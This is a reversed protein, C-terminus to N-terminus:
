YEYRAVAFQYRSNVYSAGVAVIKEDSQTNVSYITEHSSGIATTVIGRDGFTLDLSGDENYRALSFDYTSGILSFGAAIIKDDRQMTVAYAADTGGIGTKVKGLNGFGTDLTGDAEYRSLAYDSYLSSYATNGALVIKDDRQVAVAYAYDYAADYFHTTTDHVYGGNSDLRVLSFNYQQSTNNYYSTGAIAIEGDSKLAAGYAYSAVQSGFLSATKGDGGGYSTDLSGDTNYGATVHLPGIGSSYTATGVAVIKGDPEIVLANCIAGSYQYGPYSVETFVKGGSGFSTDLSGNDNYRVVAFFRRAGSYAFIKIVYGAVVIKGDPQLAVARAEEDSNTGSTLYTTIVGGNTGFSTDRSGDANFRAVAIDWNSGNHYRGAAVIKDDPQVVSAYARSENRGFSALAIGSNGFSLDLDGPAADTRTFFVITIFFAAILLSMFRVNEFLRVVGFKLM